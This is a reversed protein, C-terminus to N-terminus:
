MHLIVVIIELSEELGVLYTLLWYEIQTSSCLVSIFHPFLSSISKEIEERNVKSFNLIFKKERWEGCLSSAHTPCSSSVRTCKDM